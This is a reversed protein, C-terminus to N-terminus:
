VLNKGLLYAQSPYDTREIDERGYCGLALVKGADQWNLYKLDTEYTAVIGDMVWTHPSAGCVLLVAKKKAGCLFNDIGHFRYIEHGAEEAGKIFHEALLNSTGKKRPSGTILVIKM